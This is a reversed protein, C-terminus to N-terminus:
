LTVELPANLSVDRTLGLQYEHSFPSLAWEFSERPSARRILLEESLFGSRTM